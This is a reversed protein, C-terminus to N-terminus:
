ETRSLGPFKTTLQKNIWYFLHNLNNKLKMYVILHNKEPLAGVILSLLNTIATKVGNWRYWVIAPLNKNEADLACIIASSFAVANM